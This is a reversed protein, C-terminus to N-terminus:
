NSLTFQKKNIDPNPSGPILCLKRRKLNALKQVMYGEDGM